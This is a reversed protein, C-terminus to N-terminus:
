PLQPTLSSSTPPLLYRDYAPKLESAAPPLPASAPSRPSFPRRQAELAKQVSQGHNQEDVLLPSCGSLGLLTFGTFAAMWNVKCAALSWAKLNQLAKEQKRLLSPNLM